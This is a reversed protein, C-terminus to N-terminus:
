GPTQGTRGPLAAMVADRWAATGSSWSAIEDLTRRCGTCLGSATDIECINVCPSVIRHVPVTQVIDDDM